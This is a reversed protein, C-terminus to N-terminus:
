LSHPAPPQSQFSHDVQEGGRRRADGTQAALALDRDPIVSVDHDEIGLERPGDPRALHV